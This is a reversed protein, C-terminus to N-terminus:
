LREIQINSKGNCRAFDPYCPQSTPYNAAQILDSAGDAFKAEQASSGLNM